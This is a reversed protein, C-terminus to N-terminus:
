SRDSALFPASSRAKKAKLTELRTGDLSRLGYRVRVSCAGLGLSVFVAFLTCSFPPHSMGPGTSLNLPHQTVQQFGNKPPNKGM